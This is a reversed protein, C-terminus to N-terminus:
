TRGDERAQSPGVSADIRHGSEDVFTVQCTGAIATEHATPSTRAVAPIGLRCTTQQGFLECLLAGAVMNLLEGVADLDRGAAEPDDPETGLLNAALTAAFATSTALRIEGTRPGFYGLRAQIVTGAFPVAEDAREAFVFAAQELTRGVVQALLESSPEATM